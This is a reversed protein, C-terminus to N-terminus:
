FNHGFSLVNRVTAGGGGGGGADMFTAMLARYSQVPSFGWTATQTGVASVIKYSCAGSTDNNWDGDNFLAPTAYGSANTITTNGTLNSVIAVVLESAQTTTGSTITPAAAGAGTTTTPVQDVAVGGASSFEAVSCLPFNGLGGQGAANFYTIVTSNSSGSYNLIYWLETSIFNTGDYVASSVRSASQGGVTVTQSLGAAFVLLPIVILNGATPTTTLSFTSSAGQSTGQLGPNTPTGVVAFTM